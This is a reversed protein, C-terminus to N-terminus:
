CLLHKLTHSISMQPVGVFTRMSSIHTALNDCLVSASMSPLIFEEAMINTIVDNNHYHELAADNGLQSRKERQLAGEFLSQKEALKCRPEGVTITETRIIAWRNLLGVRLAVLTEVLFVEKESTDKIFGGVNAQGCLTTM